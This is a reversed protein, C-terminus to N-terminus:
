LMNLMKQLQERLSKLLSIISNKMREFTSPNDQSLNKVNETIQDLLKETQQGIAQKEKCEPDKLATTTTSTKKEDCDKTSKYGDITLKKIHIMNLEREIFVEKKNEEPGKDIEKCTIKRSPEILYQKKTGNISTIIIETFDKQNIAIISATPHDPNKLEITKIETLDLLAKNQTPDVNKDKSSCSNDECEHDIREQARKKINKLIPYVPINEYRKNILIDEVQFTKGTHDEISGYFNVDPRKNKNNGSDVLSGNWCFFIISLLLINKQSFNNKM